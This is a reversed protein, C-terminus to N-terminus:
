LHPFPMNKHTLSHDTAHGNLIYKYKKIGIDLTHTQTIVEIVRKSTELDMCLLWLDKEIVICEPFVSLIILETQIKKFRELYYIDLIIFVM